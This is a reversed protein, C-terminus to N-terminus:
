MFILVIKDKEQTQSQLKQSLDKVEEIHENKEEEVHV